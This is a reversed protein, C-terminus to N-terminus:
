AQAVKEHYAVISKSTRVSNDHDAMEIERAIPHINGVVRQTRRLRTSSSPVYIFNIRMCSSLTFIM